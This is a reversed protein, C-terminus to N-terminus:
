NRITTVLYTSSKALPLYRSTRVPYTGVQLYKSVHTILVAPPLGMYGPARGAMLPMIPPARRAIFAPPSRGRGRERGCGPGGHGGDDQGGRGGYTNRGFGNPAFSATPPPPVHGQRGIGHGADSQNFLLAAMQEMMQHQSEHTLTKIYQGMQQSSSVATTATLQSRYTLAAMQTAVTETSDDDSNKATLAGFANQQFPLAPAYGQHGATPATANLRCQFAEQIMRCLKIWAKAPEALQDWDEFARNYLGTILLLHIMNPMLQKDTYHNKGLLAKEAREEIRRFLVEPADAALTLSQFINDNAELAAPTPLGYILSLQGLIDMVRM